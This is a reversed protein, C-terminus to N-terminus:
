INNIYKIAELYTLLKDDVEIMPFLDIGKEEFIRTDMVKTYKLGKAKMKKELIMCRPCEITYFIINNKM